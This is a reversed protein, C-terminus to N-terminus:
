LFLDLIYTIYAMDSRWTAMAMPKSPLGTGPWRATTTGQIGGKQGGPPRLTHVWPSCFCFRVNIFLFDHSFSLVTLFHHSCSPYLSPLLSPRSVIPLHHSCSSFMLSFGPFMISCYHSFHHSCSPFTIPCHHSVALVMPCTRFVVISCNNSISMWPFM